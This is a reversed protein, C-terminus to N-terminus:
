WRRSGSPCRRAGATRSSRGAAPTRAPTRSRGSDKEAAARFAATFGMIHALLRSVPYDACPTPGALQSDAIRPILRMIRDASPALDIPGHAPAPPSGHLEDHQASREADWGEGHQMERQAFPREDYEEGHREHTPEM